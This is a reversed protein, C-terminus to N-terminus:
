LRRGSMLLIKKGEGNVRYFKGDDMLLAESSGNAHPTDLNFLKGDFLVSITDAIITHGTAIHRVRFKELTSDVQGPTARFTGTYYGRYWFPGWDSYLTDLRPDAYQYTSDAYYPRVLKNIEPLKLDMNNVLESFGGHAFLIRGIKETVNKTRLWRGLESNEGYLRVFNENLLLANEVYKRNLYRLDGSMNMIEHNGLIFHVYGGAARAKEELAYVLWLVETVQEGRDVFDGTLVLHGNGFTWNFNNDIVNNAVLLKRFARFTGEIDSIALLKNVKGFETEENELTKLKVTFTEGPVDTNVQLSLNTKQPLAVSDARVTLKGNVDKIYKAVVHENQYLVYPGDNKLSAVQMPSIQLKTNDGPHLFGLSIFALPIIAAYKM